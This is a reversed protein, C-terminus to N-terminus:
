AAGPAIATPCGDEAFILSPLPYLSGDLKRWRRRFQARVRAEAIDWPEFDGLVDFEWESYGCRRAMLQAFVKCHVCEKWTWAYEGDMGSGRLYTEGTGIVRKCLSCRHAKRATPHTHHFFM